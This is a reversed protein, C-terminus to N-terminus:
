YFAATRLSGPTIACPLWQGLQPESSAAAPWGNQAVQPNARRTGREAGDGDEQDAGGGDGDVDTTTALFDPKVSNPALGASSTVQM